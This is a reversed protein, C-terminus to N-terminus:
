KIFDEFGSEDEDINPPLPAESQEEDMFDDSLDETMEDLDLWNVPEPQQIQTPQEPRTEPIFDEFGSEDEDINQPLPAEEAEKMKEEAEEIDGLIDNYDAEESEEQEDGTMANEIDEMLDDFDIEDESEDEEEEELQSSHLITNLNCTKPAEIEELDALIDMVQKRGETLLVTIMKEEEENNQRTIKKQQEKVNKSDIEIETLNQKFLLYSFKNIKHVTIDKKYKNLDQTTTMNTINKTINDMNRDYEDYKSEVIKLKKRNSQLRILLKADNPSKKLKKQLKVINRKLLLLKESYNNFINIKNVYTKKYNNFLTIMRKYITHYYKVQNVDVSPSIDANNINYFIFQIAQYINKIDLKKMQNNRIINNIYERIENKDSVVDEVFQFEDANLRINKINRQGINIKIVYSKSAEKKSLIDLNKQLNNTAFKLIAIREKRMNDIVTREESTLIKYVHRNLKYFMLRDKVENKKGIFLDDDLRNDKIKNLRKIEKMRFRKLEVIEDKDYLKNQRSLAAMSNMADTNKDITTQLFNIHKQRAQRARKNVYSQKNLKQIEGYQGKHMGNTIKVAKNRIDNLLIFANRNFSKNVKDIKILWFNNELKKTVEGIKKSDAILVKKGKLDEDEVKYFKTMNLLKKLDGSSILINVLFLICLQKVIDNIIASTSGQMKSINNAKTKYYLKRKMDMISQANSKLINLIETKYNNLDVKFIKDIAEINLKLPHEFDYEVVDDTGYQKLTQMEIFGVDNKQYKRTSSLEFDLEENMLLMVNPKHIKVKKTKDFTLTQKVVQAMHKMLDDPADGQLKKNKIPVDYEEVFYTNVSEVLMKIYWLASDDMKLGRGSTTVGDFLDSEWHMALFNLQTETLIKHKKNLEKIKLFRVREMNNAKEVATKLKVFKVMSKNMQRLDLKIYKNLEHFANNYINIMTSDTEILEILTIEKNMTTNYFKYDFVFSHIKKAILSLMDKAEQSRVRKIQNTIYIIIDVISDKTYIKIKKDEDYYYFLVNYDLNDLGKYAEVAKFYHTFIRALINQFIKDIDISLKFKNNIVSGKYLWTQYSVFIEFLSKNRIMDPAKLYIVKHLPDEARKIKYANLQNRIYESPLNFAKLRKELDKINGSAGENFTIEYAENIYKTNLNNIYQDLIDSADNRNINIIRNLVRIENYFNDYEDDTIENNIKYGLLRILIESVQKDKKFDDTITDFVVGETDVLMRYDTEMNVLREYLREEGNQEYLQKLYAKYNDNDPVVCNEFINFFVFVVLMNKNQLDISEYNKDLIVSIIRETLINTDYMKIINSFFTNFNMSYLVRFQAIVFSVEESINYENTANEDAIFSNFTQFEGDTITQILFDLYHMDRIAFRRILDKKKKIFYGFIAGLVDYDKMHQKLYEYTLQSEENFAILNDTVIKIIDKNLIDMEKNVGSVKNSKLETFLQAKRSLKKYEKYHSLLDEKDISKKLYVGLTKTNILHKFLCITKYLYIDKDSRGDLVDDELTKNMTQTLKETYEGVCQKNFYEEYDQFAIKDSKYAKILSIVENIQANKYLEAKKVSSLNFTKINEKIIDLKSM